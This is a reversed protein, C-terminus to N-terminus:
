LSRQAFGVTRANESDDALVARQGLDLDGRRGPRDAAVTDFM